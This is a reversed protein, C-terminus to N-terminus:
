DYSLGKAYGASHLKGLIPKLKVGIDRRYIMDPIKVQDVVRYVRKRAQDVTKGLSTAIAVYEATTQFQPGSATKGIMVGACHIDDYVDELGLIPNGEVLDPPSCNYPWRPQALVVGIAVDNSVKLTDKGDLLDRAWQAPDGHHSATQIYFAPWGCRATFEFPWAKGKTDIGVGVSFDGRHGTASLAASMPLLMEHALKETEAYQCVTGMEGTNPGIEGEGLKKHEFCIQWKDPLFGEPGFWGSVGFDCLMDIKEQLMCKKLKSGRKIKDELWGCMEEPESAIFTLAKDGEAGDLPKFAYCQDSKRAFKAADQLSDFCHYPPLEIGAAELAKMGVERDIELKASAVTPAFIKFGYSRYRDLEHLYRFNGSAVILGEKAWTMHPRFDDVITFGTKFGEGARISENPKAYRHWRVEHGAAACRIAFDLM